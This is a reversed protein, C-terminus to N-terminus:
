HKSSFSPFCACHTRPLGPLSPFCVELTGSVPSLFQLAIHRSARMPHTFFPVSVNTENLTWTRTDCIVDVLHDNESKVHVPPHSSSASASGVTAYVLLLSILVSASPLAAPPSSKMTDCHVRAVRERRFSLSPPCPFGLAHHSKQETERKV